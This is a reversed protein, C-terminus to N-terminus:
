LLKFPQLVVQFPFKSFGVGGWTLRYCLFQSWMSIDCRGQSKSEKM